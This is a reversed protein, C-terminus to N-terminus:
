AAKLPKVKIKHSFQSIQWTDYNAQINIWMEISTSLLKSLRLAMEPSIGAHGNLLRSLATRSIGLKRAAQTVTLGAGDILADKVIEGPHLPKYMMTM